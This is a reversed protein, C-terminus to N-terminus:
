LLLYCRHEGASEAKLSKHQGGHAKFRGHSRCSLRAVGNSGVLGFGSGLGSQHCGLDEGASVLEVGYWSWKGLFLTGASGEGRRGPLQAPHEEERQEGATLPKSCGPLTFAASCGWLLHQSQGSAPETWISARVTGIFRWSIHWCYERAGPHFYQVLWAPKAM